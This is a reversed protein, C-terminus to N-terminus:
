IHHPNKIIHKNYPSLYKKKYSLILISSSVNMFSLYASIVHYYSTEHICRSPLAHQLIWPSKIKKIDKYFFYVNIIDKNPEIWERWIDEKNLIHDYSIIFCLAIKM